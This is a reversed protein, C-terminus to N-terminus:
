HPDSVLSREDPVVLPFWEVPKPYLYVYRLALPGLPPKPGRLLTETGQDVLYRGDGVNVRYIVRLRREVGARLYLLHETVGGFLPPLVLQPGLAEVGVIPLPYQGGVLAELRPPFLGETFLVM